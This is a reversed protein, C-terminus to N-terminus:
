DDSVTCVQVFLNSQHAVEHAQTAGEGVQCAARAHDRARNKPM